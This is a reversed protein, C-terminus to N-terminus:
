YFSFNKLLFDIKESIEYERVETEIGRKEMRRKLTAINGNDGCLNLLDPYLYAITIKM